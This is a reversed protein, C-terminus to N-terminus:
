ELHSNFIEDIKEPPLDFEYNDDIEEPKIDVDYQVKLQKSFELKYKHDKVLVQKTEPQRAFFNVLDTYSYMKSYEGRKFTEFTDYYKEPLKIVFMHLNGTLLNDYAYDDEYMPQDRIWLQFKEFTALNQATNVLVFIHKEFKINSKITIIDGIGIGVKWITHFMKGFEEGYEWLCPLLYKKTKNMLISGLQIKM